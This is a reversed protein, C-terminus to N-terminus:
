MKCKASARIGPSKCYTSPCEGRPLYPSSDPISGVVKQNISGLREAM